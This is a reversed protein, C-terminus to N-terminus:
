KEKPLRPRLDLIHVVLAVSGGMAEEVRKAEDKLLSKLEVLGIRKGSEPHDWERDKAITILLCGSRSTEAAMYKKVLQDSITDRLNRGTRGDALKLEIIAEHNSAVSRLRIDTEKEDATVAEQDVTYLNNAAYKLERAIERRMITEASIGAWADRPSIDSLLLDDLDTLRDNLITFMSSNTTAPAEGTRDLAIAQTENFTESDIEKAWNEDAIALIRDKLHTFNPDESLEQKTQMGTEGKLALLAELISNRADEAHDRVDPTYAGSGERVIDDEKRVHKYALRLLHLLQPPSFGTLSISGHRNNFLTSFWRVAESQAAPEINKIQDELAVLGLHHDLEILAPLWIFALESIIEKSLHEQSVTLLYTRVDEDGFEM